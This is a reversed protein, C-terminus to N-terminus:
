SSPITDIGVLLGQDNDAFTGPAVQLDWTEGEATTATCPVPEFTDFSMAGECHVDKWDAYDVPVYANEATLVTLTDQALTEADLEESGYMSGFGLGTLSIDEAALNQGSGSLGDGTTFLVAVRSGSAFDDGPVRVSHVTWEQEAATADMSRPGLCSATAGPSLELESECQATGDFPDALLAALHEADLVPDGEGPEEPGLETVLLIRTREGAQEDVAQGDSPQEDDAQEDAGEADDGSGAGAGDDTGTGGDSVEAGASGEDAPADGAGTGCASLALM